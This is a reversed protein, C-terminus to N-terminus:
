NVSEEEDSEYDDSNYVNSKENIDSNINNSDIIISEDINNNNYKKQIFMQINKKLDKEDLLYENMNIFDFLEESNEKLIIRFFLNQIKDICFTLYNDLNNTKFSTFKGSQVYNSSGYIIYTFNNFNHPMIIQILYNKNNKIINKNFEYSTM